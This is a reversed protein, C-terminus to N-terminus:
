QTRSLQGRAVGGPNAATHINFYFGGPNALISNAIDTAMTIGNKTFNGSGTAFSIEGAALALNVVPGGVVGSAGTHIHAATLTMGAPFGTVSVAFDATAATINGGGDRTLNFTITATGSGSVEPGVVAPSENAPLLTASFVPPNNSPSVPGDDCASFGLCLVAISTAATFHRM